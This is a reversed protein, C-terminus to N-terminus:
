RNILNSEILLNQIAIAAEAYTLTEKPYIIDKARGHFVGSNLTKNVAEYAWGPVEEKDKYREIKNRDSVKLGTIDIAKAYMTMAQERTIEENPRFTKDMFGKIIGYEAAANIADARIDTQKVDLFISRRVTNSRYIGIAKTIYEAFEGRTINKDPSFTEPEAIIIKSALCNVANEAWHNEVSEVKISNGIVLYISNTPSKLNTFNINNKQFVETPIHVFTGDENYVVGTTIDKINIDEATKLIRQVYNSFKSIELQKSEGTKFKIKVVVKFEVPPSVINYNKKKANKEIEKIIAKDLQNIKVESKVSEIAEAKVGLIEAIREISVEEEPLFYEIEEKKIKMSDSSRASSYSGSSSSGPSTNPSEPQAEIEPNEEPEPEPNVIVPEETEKDDENEDTDEPPIIVEPPDQNKDIEKTINITYIENSGDEGTVKITFVNSGERLLQEGVHGTITANIDVAIASITINGNSTKALTYTKIDPDFGELIEGNVSLSSLRSEDNKPIDLKWNGIESNWKYLGAQKNQLHYDSQFNGNKCFLVGVEVNSPINIETLLSSYFASNGINRVKDPITVTSLESSHFAQNGIQTM